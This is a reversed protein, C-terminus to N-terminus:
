GQRRRRPRRRRQLLLRKRRCTHTPIHMPICAHIHAKKRAAAEQEAKKKAAEEEEAQEHSCTLMQEHVCMCLCSHVGEKTSGGRERGEGECCGGGGGAHPHVHMVTCVHICTHAKKRAAAEAKDRKMRATAEEEAQM